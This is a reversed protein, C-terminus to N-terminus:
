ICRSRRPISDAFRAHTFVTRRTSKSSIKSQRHPYIQVAYSVIKDDPVWGTKMNDLFRVMTKGGKEHGQGNGGQRPPIACPWWPYKFYKAWVIQGLPAVPFQGTIIPVSKPKKSSESTSTTLRLDGTSEGPSQETSALASGSSSGRGLVGAGPETPPGCPEAADDDGDAADVKIDKSSDSPALGVAGDQCSDTKEASKELSAHNRGSLHQPAGDVGPAEQPTVMKRDRKSRGSLPTSTAVAGVGAGQTDTPQNKRIPVPLTADSLPLEPATHLGADGLTGKQFEQGGSQLHQICLGCIIGAQLGIVYAPVHKTCFSAPCTKCRLLLKRESCKENDCGGWPDNTAVVSNRKDAPLAAFCEAHFCKHRRRQADYHVTIDNECSKDDGAPKLDVTAYCKFCLKEQKVDPTRDIADTYSLYEFFRRRHTEADATNTALPPLQPPKPFTAGTFDGRPIDTDEHKFFYGDRTPEELDDAQKKKDEPGRLHNTATSKVDPVGAGLRDNSQQFQSQSPSMAAQMIGASLPSKRFGPSGMSGAFGPPANLKPSGASALQSRQRPGSAPKTPKGAGRAARGGASAKGATRPAKIAGHLVGPEVMPDAVRGSAPGAVFQTPPARQRKPREM